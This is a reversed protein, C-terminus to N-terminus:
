KHMTPYREKLKNEQSKSGCYEKLKEESMTEAMEAGQKSYSAPQEGRKISLAICFLKRQAETEAPM